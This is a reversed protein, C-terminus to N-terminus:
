TYIDSTYKVFSKNLIKETVVYNKSNKVSLYQLASSKCCSGFLAILSLIIEASEASFFWFRKGQPDCIIVVHLSNSSISHVM